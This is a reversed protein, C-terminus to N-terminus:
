SRAGFHNEDNSVLKPAAWSDRRRCGVDSVTADNQNADPHLPSTSERQVAGSELRQELVPRYKGVAVATQADNDHLSDRQGARSLLNRTLV